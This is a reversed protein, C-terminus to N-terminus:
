AGKILILTAIALVFYGFGKELQKADCYRSSYSGILIGITALITFYIMIPWDIAVQGSSYYKWFGTVSNATIILLSTGVAKKMPLKAVLVLAPIIMFGGGIGVFGTLIGVGLGQLLILLHHPPQAPTVVELPVAGGEVALNVGRPPEPVIALRSVLPDPSDLAEAPREQSRQAGTSGKRIMMVAAVVMMIGFCFLQIQASIVPLLAIQAGIAAGIMASPAFFAAIKFSINRQKWHPIVGILSM